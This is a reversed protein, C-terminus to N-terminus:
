LLKKKIADQLAQVIKQFLRLTFEEGQDTPLLRRRPVNKSRLGDQGDHYIAKEDTFTVRPNEGSIDITLSDHLKGSAKLTVPSIRNKGPVKGAKIAEKYSESYQQYKNGTLKVPNVGKIILDLLAKGFDKDINKKFEERVEGSQLAALAKLRKQIKVPM